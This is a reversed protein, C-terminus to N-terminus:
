DEHPMLKIVIGTEGFPVGTSNGLLYLEGAADQGWGLLTFGLPRPTGTGDVTNLEFVKSTKVFRDKVIDKKNLFFARGNNAFFQQSFDGFLYRGRLGPIADGRYVFGGLVAIGEDHDYEAVPDILGTSDCASPDEVFGADAGNPNFCFSGEKIRWGYNGGAIVVDIEEIANQGVDGLYIDGNELDFSYRFPNRFGYAFIEDCAGDACGAMGGNSGDTAFPNDAPIGYQGNASDRADVDIRLLSGLVNGPTQGNGQPVHGPGEDDANGGDGLSIYLLGDPGFNLGGGDHNFQPEEIRLLERRTTPDVVATPDGPSAVRWEAIASEHNPISDDPTTFDVTGTVPESSYTYLLGNTAYEPHFAVGLLGREDFTGPGAIGLAVLRDSLDLFASKVGTAVEIKWLIGDQDTVFLADPLGPAVTGWNPATLGTAVTVLEVPPGGREIPAAIPNELAQGTALSSFLLGMAGAVPRHLPISTGFRM